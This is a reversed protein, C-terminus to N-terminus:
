GTIAAVIDSDPPMGQKAFAIKGAKDVVYVTRQISKGNEKLADYAQAATRDQDVLLAFPFGYKTSFKDHSALSGPNMGFIIADASDLQAKDDRM